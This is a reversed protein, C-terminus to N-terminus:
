MVASCGLVVSGTVALDVSRPLDQLGLRYVLVYGVYFLKSIHRECEPLSQHMEVAILPKNSVPTTRPFINKPTAQGRMM